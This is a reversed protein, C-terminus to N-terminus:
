WVGGERLWPDSPPAAAERSAPPRAARDGRWRTPHDAETATRATTDLAQAPPADGAPEGDAEGIAAPEGQIPANVGTARGGGTLERVPRSQASALEQQATPEVTPPASAGFPAATIAVTSPPALHLLWTM